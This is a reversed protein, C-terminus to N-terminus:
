KWVIYYDLLVYGSVCTLKVTYTGLTMVESEYIKQKLGYPAVNFNVTMEPGTDIQVKGVGHTALREAWIEIKKGTFTYSVVSNVANSYAITGGDWTTSPGKHLWTPSYTALAGDVKTSTMPVTTAPETLRKIYNSISDLQVQSVVVSLPVQYTIIKALSNLANGGSVDTEPSYVAGFGMLVNYSVAKRLRIELNKIKPDRIVLATDLQANALLSSLILLTVLTTKM